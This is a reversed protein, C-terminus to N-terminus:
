IICQHSKQKSLTPKLWSIFLSEKIHLQDKTRATDLITFCDRSWANLCDSSSMLHQYIHSKKDTGFYEDIRTTLHHHTQGDYSANCSACVFKYVVKSSLVSPYSDKYSFSSSTSQHVRQYPYFTVYISVRLTM